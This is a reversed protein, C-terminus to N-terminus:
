TREARSTHEKEQVGREIETEDGHSRACFCAFRLRTAQDAEGWSRSSGVRVHFSMTINTCWVALIRTTYIFTYYSTKTMHVTPPWPFTLQQRQEFTTTKPPQNSHRGRQGDLLEQTIVKSGRWSPAIFQKKDPTWLFSFKDTILTKYHQTGIAEGTYNDVRIATIPQVHHKYHPEAWQNATGDSRQKKPQDKNGEWCERLM